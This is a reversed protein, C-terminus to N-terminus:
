EGKNELEITGDLAAKILSVAIKLVNTRNLSLFYVDTNEGNYDATVSINKKRVPIISEVYAMFACMISNVTGFLIATDCPDDTSVNVTVCIKKVVFARVMFVHILRVSRLLDSFQQAFSYASTKVTGTKRTLKESQKRRKNKKRKKSNSTIDGLYLEFRFILIRVYLRFDGDYRIYLYIPHFLIAAIVLLVILLWTM